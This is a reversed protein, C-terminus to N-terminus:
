GRGRSNRPTDFRRLRALVGDSTGAYARWKLAQARMNRARTLVGDSPPKGERHLYRATIVDEKEDVFLPITKVGAAKLEDRLKTEGFPVETIVPRDGRAAKIIERLHTSVSGKPGWRADGSDHAPVEPKVQPHEWCRDHAVYNFKQALQRCVWSKGSGAVGIILYVPQMGGGYGGLQAAAVSVPGSRLQFVEM